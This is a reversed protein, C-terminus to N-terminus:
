LSCLLLRELLANEQRLGPNRGASRFNKEAPEKSVGHGGVEILHLHVEIQAGEEGQIMKCGM